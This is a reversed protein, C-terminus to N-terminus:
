EAILTAELDASALTATCGGEVESETEAAEDIQIQRFSVDELTASVLSGAQTDVESITIIGSDAMLFQDEIDESEIYVCASCEFLETEPGSIEFTGPVIGGKFEGLEEWLELVLYHADSEGDLGIGLEVVLPGGTDGKEQLYVFGEATGATSADTGSLCVTGDGPTPGDSGDDSGDDAGDDSGDGTGDDDTDGDDTDGDDAADTADDGGEPPDASCAVLAFLLALLALSAKMTPEM